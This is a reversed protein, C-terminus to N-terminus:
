SGVEALTRIADTEAAHIERLRTSLDTYLAKVEADTFPVEQDYHARLRWLEKGSEAAAEQAEDGARVGNSVSETLGRMWAFEPTDASLAAEALEDWKGAIARWHTAQEGLEPLKLLAAAEDLGDAFLDRLHGGTMGAPTVNEWVSLLAGILGRREAFVTPWGQPNRDDTLRKAWRSWAPLSFSESGGSLRRACDALGDRVATELDKVEGPKISVLLNKYSGVRDRAADFAKRDVTLPALNRDDVFVKGDEEAYAVVFHGGGGEAKKPLHWYGLLERDPQVIVPNGAALEATLRKAAGRRGGTTHVDAPLGLRDVTSKLWAHPYQWQGRFGLGLAASADQAFELLIYGAGIGGSVVFVLSESLPEDGPGHIEHHALVNTIAAVDPQQGGRLQYASDM